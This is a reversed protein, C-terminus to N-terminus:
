SECKRLNDLSLKPILSLDVMKNIYSLNMHGLRGHWIDCSDVIYFSSSSTNKNIHKSVNLMFFGQNCYGKRAFVDNRILIIKDSDFLIMVGVKWLLSVSVLNWHINPMRLVNSLALVKRSTLKLLVKGKGITPSSKSDGMSM